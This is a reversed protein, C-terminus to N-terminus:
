SIHTLADHWCLLHSISESVIYYGGHSNYITNTCNKLDRLFAIYNTIDLCTLKEEDHEDIWLLISDPQLSSITSIIDNHNSLVDKSIVLRM